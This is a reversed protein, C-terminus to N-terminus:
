VWIPPARKDRGAFHSPYDFTTGRVQCAPGELRFTPPARKDRGAFHSPYDFTTGRVQCAPGELRVRCDRGEPARIANREIGHPWPRSSM